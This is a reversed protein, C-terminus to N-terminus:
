IRDIAAKLEEASRAMDDTIGGIVRASEQLSGALTRLSGILNLLSRISEATDPDASALIRSIQEETYRM